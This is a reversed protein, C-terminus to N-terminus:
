ALVGPDVASSGSGTSTPPLPKETEIEDVLHISPHLDVVLEPDLHGQRHALEAEGLTLTATADIDGGRLAVLDGRRV